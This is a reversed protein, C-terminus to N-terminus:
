SDRAGAGDVAHAAHAADQWRADKPLILETARVDRYAAPEVGPPTGGQEVTAIAELLIRRLMIIARDTSGLHERTRDVIRGMSTTMAGDQAIIGRIGTYGNPGVNTRQLSRDIGFDNGGNYAVGACRRADFGDGIHSCAPYPM